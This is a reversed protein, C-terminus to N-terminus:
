GVGWLTYIAYLLLFGGGGLVVWAVTLRALHVREEYMAGAIAVLIAGIFDGIAGGIL